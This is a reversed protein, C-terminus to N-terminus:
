LGWLLLIGSVALMVAIGLGSIRVSAAGGTVGSMSLSSNTMTANPATGNAVYVLSIGMIPELTGNTGLMPAHLNTNYFAQVTLNDGKNLMGVDYCTSMNSIHVNDIGVNMGSMNMSMSGMSMLSMPEVYGPTMGYLATSNCIMKKNQFIEINTGGDHIHGGIGLIEGEVPSTYPMSTYNFTTNAYAPMLSADACPAIDLWIPYVTSFNAPIGPIYEYTVTVVAPTPELIENMLEVLLAFEDTQNVYYGAM